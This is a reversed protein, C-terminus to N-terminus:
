EAAGAKACMAANISNVKLFPRAYIDVCINAAVSSFVLFTISGVLFADPDAGFVKSVAPIPFITTIVLAGAIFPLNAGYIFAQTFRSIGLNKQNKQQITRNAFFFLALYFWSMFAIAPETYHGYIVHYVLTSKQTLSALGETTTQKDIVFVGFAHVALIIAAALLYLSIALYIKTPVGQDRIDDAAFFTHLAIIFLSFLKVLDGFFVDIETSSIFPAAWLTLGIAGALPLLIQLGISKALRFREADEHAKITALLSLYFCDPTKTRAEM